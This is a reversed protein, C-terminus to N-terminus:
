LLIREEFKLRFMERRDNAHLKVATSDFAVKKGDIVHDNTLVKKRGMQSLKNELFNPIAMRLRPVEGVPMLTEHLNPFKERLGSAELLKSHINEPDYLPLLTASWFALYPDSDLAFRRLDLASESLFFSLCYMDKTKGPRPRLDLLALPATMLARTTSVLGVSTIIFLDIDSDEGSGEWALRNCVFIAKVSTLRSAYHAFKKAKILKPLSTRYAEHRTILSQECGKLCYFGLSEIIESDNKLHDLALDFESKSAAIPLYRHLELATLPREFISFYVLVERIALECNLARSHWM